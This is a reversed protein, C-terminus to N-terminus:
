QNNYKHSRNRQSPTTYDFRHGKDVYVDHSDDFLPDPGCTALTNVFLPESTCQLLDGSDTTKIYDFM